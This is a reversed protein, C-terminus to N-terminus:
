RGKSIGIYADDWSKKKKTKAPVPSANDYPNTAGEYPSAPVHSRDRPMAPRRATRGTSNYPNAGETRPQSTVRESPLRGRANAAVNGAGDRGSPDKGHSKKKRGFLM